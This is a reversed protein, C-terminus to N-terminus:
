WRIGRYAFRGSTAPWMMPMAQSIPTQVFTTIPACWM